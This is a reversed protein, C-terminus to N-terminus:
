DIDKKERKNHDDETDSDKFCIQFNPLNGCTCQIVISRMYYQKIQMQM